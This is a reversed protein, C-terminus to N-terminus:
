NGTKGIAQRHTVGYSLLKCDEDQFRDFEDLHKVLIRELATTKTQGMIGCYNEFRESIARDLKINLTQYEKKPRAM